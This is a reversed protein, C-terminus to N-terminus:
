SVIPLAMYIETFEGEKSQINIKGKHIQIIDKTMFLGLGTGKSTPKTTFFPSFLRELDRPPIGKGNDRISVFVFQDEVRTSITIEPAFGKATKNKESLTYFANNIVNSIAQSLEFPLIHVKTQKQVTNLVLNVPLGAYESKLETYTTKIRNEIFSNFEAEIFDNSKEKLLKQMDKLIRTTSNGHEIIKKSNNKLMNLEFLLDELQEESLGTSNTEVNSIMEDLVADSSESFNTVYNIPNLIRDVIGKTLQGVSALKEQRILEDQTNKLNKLTIELNELLRTKIYAAILHEKLHRIMSLDRQDFANPRINNELTIYGEIRDENVIAIVLLSKPTFLDDIANGLPEFEPNNKVYIDEFVEEAGDIYRKRAQEPTLQVSAVYALERSGRLAKFRFAESEQDFVLVTASDMNRIVTFRSLITQFLNASDLETNIAQVIVDIKELQDNKNALEESQRELVEKQEVVEETRENVINELLRREKEARKLRRRILFSLLFLAAIIYILYAWWTLYFPTKITFTFTSEQGENGYIDRAKVHFVYSGYPLKSYDKSTQSTWDSPRDDLGELFYQYQIEGFPSYVPASFRITLGNFNSKFTAANVSAATSDPRGNYISKTSDETVSIGRILTTFLLTDHQTRTKDFHVLGGIGGFWVSAQGDPYVSRINLDNLPSFPKRLVTYTNGTKKFLSIQKEDGSVTWLDGNTQEDIHSFWKEDASGFLGVSFPGFSDTKADYRFIGKANYVLLGFRSQWLQNGIDTQLGKSIGYSTLARTAPSYSYLGHRLTQIWLRGSAEELLSVVNDPVPVKVSTAPKSRILQLSNEAGVYLLGPTVASARVAFSYDTSLRSVATGNISYVGTATAVYLMNGSAQLSWCGSLLVPKLAANGAVYLGKTTAVFLRGNFRLMDNVIGKQSVDIVSLPSATNVLALGNDMALWMNGARDRFFDNVSENQLQPGTEAQAIISGFRNITLMGNDTSWLMFENNGADAAKSLGTFLKQQIYPIVSAGTIKYLGSNRTILLHEQQGSPFMAIVKDPIKSSGSLPITLGNDYQLLINDTTQVFIHRNSLFANQITFAISRRSLKKNKLNYSYITNETFFYVSGNLELFKSLRQTTSAPLETLSNFFLEGQKNMDLYGFESSTGVFIKGTSDTHLATVRSNTPILQWNQGDYELVGAFNGFYM